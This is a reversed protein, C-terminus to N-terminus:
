KKKRQHSFIIVNLDVIIIVWFRMYLLVGSIRFSTIQIASARRTLKDLARFFYRAKFTGNRPHLVTCNRAELAEFSAYDISPGDDHQVKFLHLTCPTVSIVGVKPPTVVRATSQICHHSHDRQNAVTKGNESSAM